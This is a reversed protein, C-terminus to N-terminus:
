VTFEIEAWVVTCAAEEFLEFNSQLQIGVQLNNINNWTWSGGGPRSTRSYSYDTWAVSLSFESGRAQTGGLRM